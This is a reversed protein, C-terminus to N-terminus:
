GESDRREKGGDRRNSRVSTMVLLHAIGAMIGIAFGVLALFNTGWRSDLWQGALGPLVMEASVALIRAVWEFALGIPSPKEDVPDTM